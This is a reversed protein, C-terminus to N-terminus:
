FRDVFIADRARGSKLLARPVLLFKGVRVEMVDNLDFSEDIRLVIEVTTVVYFDLLDVRWFPDDAGVQSAFHQYTGAIDGDNAKTGASDSNFTPSTIVPKKLALNGM